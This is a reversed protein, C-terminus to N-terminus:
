WRRDDRREYARHAPRRGAESLYNNLVRYREGAIANDRSTWGGRALDRTLREFAAVDRSLRTAEARSLRGVRYNDAIRQELNAVRARYNLQPGVVNSNGYRHDRDYRDSRDYRQEYRDNRRERRDDDDAFAPAAVGLVGLALFAAFTKQMAM